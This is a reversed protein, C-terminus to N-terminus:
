PMKTHMTKRAAVEGQQASTATPGFMRGWHIAHVPGVQPLHRYSRATGLQMSCRTESNPVPLLTKLQGSSCHMTVTNRNETCACRYMYCTSNKARKPPQQMFIGQYLLRWVKHACPRINANQKPNTDASASTFICLQHM